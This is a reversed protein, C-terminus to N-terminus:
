EPNINSIIHVRSVFSNYNKYVIQKQKTSWTAIFNADLLFVFNMLMTLLSHEWQKEEWDSNEIEIM